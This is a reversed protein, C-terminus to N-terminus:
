DALYDRVAIRVRDRGRYGRVASGVRVVHYEHRWAGAIEVESRADALEFVEGRRHELDSVAPPM